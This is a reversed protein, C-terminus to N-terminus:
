VGAEGPHIECAVWQELHTTTTFILNSQEALALHPNEEREEAVAAATRFLQEIDRRVRDLAVDYEREAISLSGASDIDDRHKAFAEDILELARQQAFSNWKGPDDPTRRHGHRAVVKAILDAAARVPVDVDAHGEPRIRRPDRYQM